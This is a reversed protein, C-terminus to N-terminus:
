LSWDKFEAYPEIFAEEFCECHFPNGDEDFGWHPEGTEISEGCIFCDIQDHSEM